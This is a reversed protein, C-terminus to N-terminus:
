IKFHTVKRNGLLVKYIGCENSLTPYQSLNLCLQVCMVVWSNLYSEQYLKEINKTVMTINMDTIIDDPYRSSVPLSAAAM